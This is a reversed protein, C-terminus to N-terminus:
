RCFACGAKQDRSMAHNGQKSVATVANDQAKWRLFRCYPVDNEKLAIGMLQNKVTDNGHVAGTENAATVVLAYGFCDTVILDQGNYRRKAPCPLGVRDM